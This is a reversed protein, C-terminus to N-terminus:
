CSAMCPSSKREVGKLEQRCASGQLFALHSIGLDSPAPFQQKELGRWASIVSQPIVGCVMEWWSGELIRWVIAWILDMRRRSLGACLNPWTPLPVKKVDTGKVGLPLSGRIPIDSM